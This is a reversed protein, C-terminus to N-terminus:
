FINRIMICILQLKRLGADLRKEISDLELLRQRSFSDDNNQDPLITDSLAWLVFSLRQARRLSSYKQEHLKSEQKKVEKQQTTGATVPHHHDVRVFESQTYTGVFAKNEELQIAYKELQFNDPWAKIPNTPLLGIIQTPIPMPNNKNPDVFSQLLDLMEDIKIWVSYELTLVQHIDDENHFDGEEEEAEKKKPIRKNYNVIPSVEIKGNEYNPNVPEFEFGHLEFAQAVANNKAAEELDREIADDCDDIDSNSRPNYVSILEKDPIIEIDAISYPSHQRKVTHVRFRELAQVILILRGDELEKHSTIQMLVGITAVKDKDSRRNNSSYDSNIDYDELQYAPNDLNDSGGPLYLHGFYFKKANKKNINKNGDHDVDGSENPEHNSSRIIKQFMNTYHPVHVNLVNQYGPLETWQTRWLPVDYMITSDLNPKAISITEDMYFSEQLQRVLNMRQQREEISENEIPNGNGNGNGNDNINSFLFTSKAYFPKVM